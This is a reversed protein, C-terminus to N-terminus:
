SAEKNFNVGAKALLKQIAPVDKFSPVVETEALKGFRDRAVFRGDPATALVRELEGKGNRRTYMRCVIDCLKPLDVPLEKGPLDPMGLVLESENQKLYQEHCIFVINYGRDRLDRLARTTKRVREVMLGWDPLTALEKAGKISGVMIRSLEGVTDVIITRVKLEKGGIRVINEKATQAAQTLEMIDTWSEVVTIPLDTLVSGSGAECDWMWPDPFCSALPTKGVGFAGYILWTTGSRTKAEAATLHKM